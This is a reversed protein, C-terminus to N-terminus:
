IQKLLLVAADYDGSLYQKEQDNKANDYATKLAKQYNTLQTKMIGRFTSDFNSAEVASNLAADTQLNKSEAIQKASPKGGHAAMFTLLDQQESGMSLAVSQAFNQTSQSSQTAGIQNVELAVRMLETQDQVVVILNPKNSSGNLLNSVIVFLIILIFLGGVVVILRTLMSNGGFRNTMSPKPAQGPNMFFDYESGPPPPQPTQQPNM